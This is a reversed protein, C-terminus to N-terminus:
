TKKHETPPGQNYSPAEYIAQISSFYFDKNRRSPSELTKHQTKTHANAQLFTDRSLLCSM